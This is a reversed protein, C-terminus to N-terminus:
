VFLLRKMLSCGYTVASWKTELSSFSGPLVQKRFFQDFNKTILIPSVVMLMNQSAWINCRQKLKSTARSWMDLKPISPLSAKISDNVYTCANGIFIYFGGSLKRTVSTSSVRGHNSMQDLSLVCLTNRKHRYRWLPQDLAFIWLFRTSPPHFKAKFFQSAWLHCQRIISSIFALAQADYKLVLTLPNNIDGSM